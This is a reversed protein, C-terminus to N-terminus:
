TIGVAVNDADTPWLTGRGSGKSLSVTVEAEPLITGAGTWAIYHPNQPM